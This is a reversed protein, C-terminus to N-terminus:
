EETKKEEKAKKEAKANAKIIAKEEKEKEEQYEKMSELKSKMQGDKSLNLIAGPLDKSAAATMHSGFIYFSGNDEIISPDHVSTQAKIEGREIGDYSVSFDYKDMGMGCATLGSLLGASLLIALGKKGQRM